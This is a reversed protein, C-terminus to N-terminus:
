EGCQLSPQTTSLVPRSFRCVNIAYRPNLDRDRRWKIIFVPVSFDTGTKANAITYIMAMNCGNFEIKKALNIYNRDVTALLLQKLSEEDATKIYNQINLVFQELHKKGFKRDSGASAVSVREALKLVDAKFDASHITRKEKNTM